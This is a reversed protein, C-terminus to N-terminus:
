QVHICGNGNPLPLCLTKNLKLIFLTKTKAYNITRLIIIDLFHHFGVFWIGMYEIDIHLILPYNMKIADFAIVYQLLNLRTNFYRILM